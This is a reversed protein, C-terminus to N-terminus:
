YKQSLSFFFSFSFFSLVVPHPFVKVLPKMDKIFMEFYSGLQQGSFVFRPVFLVAYGVEERRPFCSCSGGCGEGTTGFAPILLNEILLEEKETLLAPSSTPVLTQVRLPALVGGAAGEGRRLGVRPILEQTGSPSPRERLPSPPRPTRPPCGAHGLGLRAPNTETPRSRGSVQGRPDASRPHQPARCLAGAEAPGHTAAAPADRPCCPRPKARGAARGANRAASGGCSVPTTRTHEPEPQIRIDRGVDGKWRLFSSRSVPFAGRFPLM